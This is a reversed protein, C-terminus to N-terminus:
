RRPKTNQQESINDRRRPVPIRFPGRQEGHKQQNKTNMNRTTVSKKTPKNHLQTKHQHWLKLPVPVTYIGYYTVM